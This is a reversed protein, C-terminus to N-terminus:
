WTDIQTGYPSGSNLWYHTLYGRTYKWGELGLYPNLCSGIDLFTNESNEKFCEHIIYNSLSAASCLIVHDKINNKEIYEKVEEVVHYDDIMCNSGISFVEKVEFPLRDTDAAENAVYLVKRDRLLPVLEEVFRKYNNNILLNAFTLNEENGGALDKQWQFAEEGVDQRCCIGKLYNEKSFKLADILKERYFQHKEPLFEKQEEAPYRGAGKRDGTVFHNEALTVQKNQMIFMEGDSFRVFAFNEGTKLKDLLKDFEETFDKSM